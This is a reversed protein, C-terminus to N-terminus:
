PLEKVMIADKFFKGFLLLTHDLVLQTMEEWPTEEEAKDSIFWATQYFREDKRFSLIYKHGVDVDYKQDGVIVTEPVNIRKRKLSVVINEKQISSAFVLKPDTEM